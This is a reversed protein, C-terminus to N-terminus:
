RRQGGSSNTGPLHPTLHLTAGERQRFAQEKLGEFDPTFRRDALVRVRRVRDMRFMRADGSATDRTLLYWAPPEVLLGHPEVIRQTSRDTRDTYEFALCCNRRFAEEFAVLLEESATGLTELVRQTAPPGVAIRKTFHRLERARDRPLSAFLKNLASKASKSFPLTSVSSALQAAVWLAVVEEIAIHVATVGRDRELRVGGGPGSEATIPWGRERLTALDRLITRSSVDLAGAIERVSTTERARLLELLDMVRDVRTM